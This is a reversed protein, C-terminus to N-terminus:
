PSRGASFSFRTGDQRWRPFGGPAGPVQWKGSGPPFSQVFVQQTGGFESSTYAMWKGDPSFQPHGENAPGNAVPWTKGDRLSLAWIDWSTVPHIAMFLLHTGDPSWSMPSM